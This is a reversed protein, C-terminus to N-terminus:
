YTHAIGIFLYINLSIGISRFKPDIIIIIESITFHCLKFRFQKSFSHPTAPNEVEQSDRGSSVTISSMYLCVGDFDYICIYIHTKAKKTIFVEPIKNKETAYLDKNKLYIEGSSAKRAPKPFSRGFFLIGSTKKVLFAFVHIM